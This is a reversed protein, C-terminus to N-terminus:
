KVGRIAQIIFVAFVLLGLAIRYYGFLKFNNKKIYGMLFRIVFVSVVFAVVMGFILEVFQLVSYHMGFKILKVFSWGFMIPISMFFSFEAAIKRSIGMTLGGIITAGSRSTGPVIALCQFLGLKLADFYTLQDVRKIKPERSENRNEVLIFLVGYVILAVAIVPANHAYTDMWDDLLLGIVAAPLSAVIVKLWMIMTNRSVCVPGIKIENKWKPNKRKKGNKTKIPKPTNKTLRFPWLKSWYIYIVALIAGLQIVVFFMDKFEQDSQMKIFQDVLIMHGTSSIPLWETIGEVMGLFIVKLIEVFVM